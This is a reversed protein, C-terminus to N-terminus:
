ILISEGGCVLSVTGEVALLVEPFCRKYHQEVGADQETYTMDVCLIPYNVNRM